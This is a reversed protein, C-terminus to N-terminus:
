LVILLEDELMSVMWSIDTRNGEGSGSFDGVMLM